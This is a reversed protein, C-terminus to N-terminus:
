LGMKAHISDVWGDLKNDSSTGYGINQMVSVLAIDGDFHNIGAASNAICGIGYPASETAWATTSLSDSSAGDPVAEWKSTSGNYENIFGNIRYTSGKNGAYSDFSAILCKWTNNGFVSSSTTRTQWNGGTDMARLAYAGNSKSNIEILESGPATISFLTRDQDSHRRMWIMIVTGNGASPTFNNQISGQSYSNVCDGGFNCTIYGPTTTSTSATHVASSVVVSDSGWSEVDNVATSFGSDSYSSNYGFDVRFKEYTNWWSSVAASYWDTNNDWAPAADHDYGYFESMGFPETSNPYSTSDTNIANGPPSGGTSMMRLSPSEGDPNDYYDAENVEAFISTLSLEGSSPVAM